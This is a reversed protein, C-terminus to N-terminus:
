HTLPDADPTKMKKGLMMALDSDQDVMLRGNKFGGGPGGAIEGLADGQGQVDISGMSSAKGGKAQPGEEKPLTMAPQAATSTALSPDLGMMATMIDQETSALMLIAALATVATQPLPALAAVAAAARSSRHRPAAGKLDLDSGSSAGRHAPRRRQGEEGAEGEPRSSSVDTGSRFFAAPARTRVVALGRSNGATGRGSAGTRPVPPHAFAETIVRCDEAGLLFTTGVVSAVLVRM